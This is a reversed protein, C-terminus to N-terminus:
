LDDSTYAHLAPASLKLIKPSLGDHGTAKKANLKLLNDTIVETNIETFPFYLLYSKNKITAISPHDSFDEETLNLVSEQIRPSAFFDNLVARPNSILQGNGLLHIDASGDINLRSKSLLPKMKKWFLGTSPTTSAIDARFDKIARRKMATVSNRQKRYKSWNLDTPVRRFRKYLRNRTHIQMQIDPSIWPLQNNRLLIRKVLAHETLVQKFLGSWHSWIDDINKFIKSSNWPVNLSLDSLFVNQDLNETSRFDVTTAKPRPLKQKKVVFILDHDSIGVQLNGSAALREPPSTLVIDLLTSSCNTTRTAEHIVNRLCLQEMFNTLDKYPGNPNDSSELMNM